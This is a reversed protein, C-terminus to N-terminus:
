KVEKYITPDKVGAQSFAEIRETCTGCKGCHFEGGKYCSWTKSYDVGLTKGTNVISRKPLYVFPALIKIETDTGLQLASEMIGIYKPRCDPYITHDGAHVAIAIADFRLSVAMAYAISLFISNRGPVVTQKMSADTYHGDPIESSGKLASKVPLVIPIITTKIGLLSGQTEAFQKEKIHRQGYTFIVGEQYNGGSKLFYALTTSDVGGSILTLIKMAGVECNPM